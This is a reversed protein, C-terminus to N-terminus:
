GRKGTKVSPRLKRVISQIRDKINLNDSTERTKLKYYLGLIQITIPPTMTVFAVVGFADVTVEGGTATCLGIALALLFTATMPGSAVSGSDFAIATFLPPVFFSLSLALIYGPVFIWLIPVGVLIRLMSLGVAIAVGISLSISLARKPIAGATMEVVQRALVPVTPEAAVIFFGMVMGIPIIIWNYPLEGILRGIYDGVPMFGVNVGTLFLTLGIYTYVLGIAIRGLERGHLRLRFIQFLGFFVIIPLLAFAVEGMYVPIESMFLTWLDRSLEIQPIAVPTYTSGETRFVLGLILVALIPGITCLAVLGFSDAEAGADTRISAVGVGLAMIFPVVMPGTAVGGSDIAISLFDTPVFAALIFIVAYFGLLLYRIPVRFLIRLMAITLFFGTGLAVAGILVNGPINPVQKALVQLDPEAVTIFVGVLFSVLIILWLKRSRTISAGVNVGIPTMGLDTGLTFFTIGLIVMCTGIIFAMMLSNPISIISFCLVFVIGAIPLM